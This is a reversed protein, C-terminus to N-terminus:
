PRTIHYKVYIEYIEIWDLVNGLLTHVSAALILSGQKILSALRQQFELDFAFYKVMARCYACIVM